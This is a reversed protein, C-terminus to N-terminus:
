CIGSNDVFGLHTHYVSVKLPHKPRSTRKPESGNKRFCYRTFQQIEVTTEDTIVVDEFGDKEKMAKLSFVLRKIKNRSRIQQCYRSKEHKWGLKRRSYQVTSASVSVNREDKLLKQLEASTLEDNEMKEDIFNKDDQSIISKHGSRQADNISGTRKYRMIFSSVYVTAHRKQGEEELIKVINVLSNNSAHLSIIRNRTYQLLKGMNVVTHIFHKRQTSRRRQNNDSIHGKLLTAQRLSAQQYKKENESSKRLEKNIVEEQGCAYLWNSASAPRVRRGASASAPSVRNARTESATKSM